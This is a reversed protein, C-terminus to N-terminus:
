LISSIWELGRCIDSVTDVSQICWKRSIEYKVQLEEALEFPNRYKLINNKEDKIMEKDRDEEEEEEPKLKCAFIMLPIRPNIRMAEKLENTAILLNDDSISADIVYILANAIKFFDKWYSDFDMPYEGYIAALNLRKSSVKFGVGSGIGDVGPYLGTVNLPSERSWMISYLLGSASSDMAQGFIPICFVPEKEYSSSPSSRSSSIRPISFINMRHRNKRQSRNTVLKGLAKGASQFGKSNHLYQQLYWNKWSMIRNENNSMVCEFDSIPPLDLENIEKKFSHNHHYYNNYSSNLLKSYKPHFGYTNWNKIERKFRWEWSRDDMALKKWEKSVFCVSFILDEPSIFSFIYLKLENPLTHFLPKPKKRLIGMHSQLPTLHFSTLSHENEDEELIADEVFSSLSRSANHVWHFM